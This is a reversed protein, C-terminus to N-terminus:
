TSPEKAPRQKLVTWFRPVLLLAAFLVSIVVYFYTPLGPRFQWISLDFVDSVAVLGIVFVGLSILSLAIFGVSVLLSFAVAGIALYRGLAFVGIAISGRAVFGVAVVADANWGFDFLKTKPQESM